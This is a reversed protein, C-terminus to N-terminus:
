GEILSEKFANGLVLFKLLRVFKMQHFRKKTRNFLQSLEHEHSKLRSKLTRIDIGYNEAIDIKYLSKGIYVKGKSLAMLSSKTRYLFDLRMEHIKAGIKTELITPEVNISEGVKDYTTLELALRVGQMILKEKYSPFAQEVIHRAIERNDM